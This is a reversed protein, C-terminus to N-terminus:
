AAQEAPISDDEEAAWTFPVVEHTTVPARVPDPANEPPQQAMALLRSALQRMQGDSRLAHSFANWLRAHEGHLTVGPVDALPLEDTFATTVLVSPLGDGQWDASSTAGVPAWDPLEATGRFYRQIWYALGIASQVLGM